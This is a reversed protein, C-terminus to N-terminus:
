QRVYSASQLNQEESIIPVPAALSISYPLECTESGPKVRAGEYEQYSDALYIQFVIIQGTSIMAAISEPATFHFNFIIQLTILTILTFTYGM